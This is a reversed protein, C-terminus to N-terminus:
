TVVSSLENITSFVTDIQNVKILIKMCYIVSFMHRGNPLIQRIEPNQKHDFVSSIEIVIIAEM